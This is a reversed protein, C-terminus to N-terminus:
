ATTETGRSAKVIFRVAVPFFTILQGTIIECSRSPQGSDYTM